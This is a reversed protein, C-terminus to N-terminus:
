EVVIGECALVLEEIAVDDSSRANLTPGAYRIPRANRLRWTLVAASRDENLLQITVGRLADPAGSAVADFWEFLDVAGLVGRKLTVDSVNQLGTLKRPANFPENGNRYEIVQVETELGSVECFGALPAQADAGDWAVLFNFRGYPRERFESM